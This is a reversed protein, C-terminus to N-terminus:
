FLVRRLILVIVIFFPKNDCKFKRGNRLEGTYSCTLLCKGRTLLSSFYKHLKKGGAYFIESYSYKQEEKQEGNNVESM